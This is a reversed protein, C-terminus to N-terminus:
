EENLKALLEARATLYKRKALKYKSPKYPAQTTVLFIGILIFVGSVLIINSWEPYNNLLSNGVIALLVIAMVFFATLNAEAESTKSLQPSIAEWDRDLRLIQQEILIGQTHDKIDLVDSKIEELIHTYYINGEERLELSSGCSACRFYKISTNVNLNAGCNNCKLPHITAM